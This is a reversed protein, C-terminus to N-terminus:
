RVLMVPCPALHLVKASVSGMVLTGVAGRGHTGMLILEAGLSRATDVIIEAPQGVHIHKSFEIGSQELLQTVSQLQAESEERYYALLTDHGVHAQVRGIPIPLHVQLVHVEPAEALQGRLTLLHEAARLSSTSGDVPLLIKM